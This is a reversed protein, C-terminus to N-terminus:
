MSITISQMAMESQITKVLRALMALPFYYSVDM